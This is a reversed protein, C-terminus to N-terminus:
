GGPCAVDRYLDTLGEWPAICKLASSGEGRYPSAAAHLQSIALYSVGLLGVSGTCWDQQGVWEIAERYDAGQAKSIISVSGGSNAYGPLNLNM